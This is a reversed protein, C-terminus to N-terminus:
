TLTTVCVTVYFSSCSLMKGVATKMTLNFSESVNGIKHAAATLEADIYM